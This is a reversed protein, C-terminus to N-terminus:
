SSGVVPRSGTVLATIAAPGYTWGLGTAGAARVHVVCVTTSSWTLTADAEEQETPVTYAAADLRDITPGSM